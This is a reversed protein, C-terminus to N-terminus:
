GDQDVGTGSNSVNRGGGEGAVGSLMHSGLEGVLALVGTGQVSRM